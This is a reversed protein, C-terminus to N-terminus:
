KSNIWWDIVFFPLLDQCSVTLVELHKSSFSGIFQNKFDSRHQIKLSRICSCIIKVISWKNNISHPFIATIELQQLQFRRWTTWGAAWVRSVRQRSTFLLSEFYIRLNLSSSSTFTQCNQKFIVELFVSWLTILSTEGEIDFMYQNKGRSSTCLWFHLIMM